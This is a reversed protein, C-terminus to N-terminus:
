RPVPIPLATIQGGIDKTKLEERRGGATVHKVYASADIPPLGRLKRARNIDNLYRDADEWAEMEGIQRDENPNGTPSGNEQANATGGGLLKALAGIGLEPKGWTNTQRNGMMNSLVNGAVSPQATGLSNPSQKGQLASALGALLNSGM